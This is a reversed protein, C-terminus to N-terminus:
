HICCDWIQFTMLEIFQM